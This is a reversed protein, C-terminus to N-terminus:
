GKTLSQSQYSTLSKTSKKYVEKEQKEEPFFVKLHGQSIAEKTLIPFASSKVTIFNGCFIDDLQDGQKIGIWHGRNNTRRYSYLNTKYYIDIM